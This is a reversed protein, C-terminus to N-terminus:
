QLLTDPGEVLRLANQKRSSKIGEGRVGAVAAANADWEKRVGSDPAFWEDCMWRYNIGRHAPSCHPHLTPHHNITSQHITRTHTHTHTHTHTRAHTRARTHTTHSHQGISGKEVVAGEEGGAGGPM